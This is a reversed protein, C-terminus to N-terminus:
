LKFWKLTIPSRPCSSYLTLTWIEFYDIMMISGKSPSFFSVLIFFFVPMISTRQGMINCPVIVKQSAGRCFFVHFPQFQDISILDHVSSSLEIPLVCPKCDMTRNRNLSSMENNYQKHQKTKNQNKRWFKDMKDEFWFELFFGGNRWIKWIGEKYWFEVSQISYLLEGPRTNNKKKYKDFCCPFSNSKGFSEKTTEVQRVKWPVHNIPSLNYSWKVHCIM